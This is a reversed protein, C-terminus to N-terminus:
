NLFRQRFSDPLLNDTVIIDVKLFEQGSKLRSERMVVLRLINSSAKRDDLLILKVSPLFQDILSFPDACEACPACPYERSEWM